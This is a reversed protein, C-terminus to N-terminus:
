GDKGPDAQGLERFMRDIDAAGVPNQGAGPAPAPSVRPRQYAPKYSRDAAEVQEVTTLGAKQWRTLIGNMYSWNFKQKQFITRDRALLLLDDSFGQQIWGELYAMERDVPRRSEGLLLQIIETGRRDQLTLRRLHADAEELTQIGARHWRYAERRIQPLTPKRGPGKEKELSICWGTITLIVEPPLNLFDFLTYLTRLDTPSLTKGLLQEVAPVLGAFGSDSAMALNIDQTTYAPPHDDELKQPRPPHVPTDSEILGLRLLTHQAQEVRDPSWPLAGSTQGASLCLYLLAADGDGEKALKDVARRHLALISGPQLLAEAM